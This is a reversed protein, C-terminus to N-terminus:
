REAPEVVLRLIADARAHPGCDREVVGIASRQGALQAARQAALGHHEFLERVASQEAAEHGFHSAKEDVSAQVSLQRSHMSAERLLLSLLSRHDPGSLDAFDDLALQRAVLRLDVQLLDTADDLDTVTDRAHVPELLRHGALQQLE